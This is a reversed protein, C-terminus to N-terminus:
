FSGTRGPQTIVDIRSCSLFSIALGSTDMESCDVLTYLDWLSWSFDLFAPWSCLAVSTRSPVIQTQFLTSSKLICLEGGKGWISLGLTFSWNRHCLNQCFVNQWESGLACHWGAKGPTKKHRDALKRTEKGLAERKREPVPVELQLTLLM